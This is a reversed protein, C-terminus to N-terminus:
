LEEEMLLNMAVSSLILDADEASINSNDILLTIKSKDPHSAIAKIVKQLEMGLSEESKSWDPFIVLNIDRLKLNEKISTVKNNSSIKNADPLYEKSLFLGWKMDPPHSPYIAQQRDEFSLEGIAPFLEENRPVVSLLAVEHTPQFRKVMFESLGKVYIDHLEVIM